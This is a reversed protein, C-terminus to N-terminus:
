VESLEKQLAPWVKDFIQDKDQAMPQFTHIRIYKKVVFKLKKKNM